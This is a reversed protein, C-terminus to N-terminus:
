TVTITGDQNVTLPPEVFTITDTQLGNIFAVAGLYMNRINAANSGLADWGQQSTLGKPNNWIQAILSNITRVLQNFASTIQNNMQIALQAQLQVTTLPPLLPM